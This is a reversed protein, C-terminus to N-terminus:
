GGVIVRDVVGAELLTVGLMVSGLGSSCASCTTLRPGEIGLGEVASRLVAGALFNGLLEPKGSRLFDGGARMGHLTTGVVVGVRGASFGGSGAQGLSQEIAFRLYRAARPLSPCYIGPLPLAQGGGKDPNPRQELEPMPGLGSRCELIAGFTEDASLGLSTVLGIGTVAIDPGTTLSRRGAAAPGRLAGAAPM